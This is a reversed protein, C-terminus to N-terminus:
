PEIILFDDLIHCVFSISCKHLLIWEIAESLQNFLFPASRLGFPLVRDYYYSGQWYMGFLEYDSPRLPILRFAAEIDTKALYSGQGLCLIGEIANDITIYQLGFDEKSISHNISTVGSKPFSLHFITRFKNSHKKPVLGIPSVQFNPFLLPHPTPFPGAVRGLAVEKMLNATVVDPQALATPLNRSFRPVRAGKYGTDAGYKLSNCLRSVLLRDSHDVLVMELSNIPTPLSGTFAKSEDPPTPSLFIRTQMGHGTETGIEPWEHNGQSHPATVDQTYGQVDTVSMNLPVPAGTVGGVVISPISLAEVNPGLDSM